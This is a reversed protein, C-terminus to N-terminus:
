DRCWCVAVPGETVPADCKGGPYEASVQWTGGSVSAMFDEFCGNADTTVTRYTVNGLPDVYRLIVEVGAQPPDLCGAATIPGCRRRILEIDPQRGTRKAEEALAEWDVGECPQAATRLNIVTPRRLDVQVIQGGVNFNRERAGLHQM